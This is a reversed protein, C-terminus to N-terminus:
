LRAAGHWNYEHMNGIRDAGAEDFTKRPRAAIGSSKDIEFVADARFPQCQEFFDCRAHRSRRNKPVWENGRASPLKARDLGRRRRDPHIHTWDVHAVGALDLAGDRGERAGRVAPQDHRHASQRYNIAIQDDRKRGPV